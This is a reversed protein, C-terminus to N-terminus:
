HKRISHPFKCASFLFLHRPMSFSVRAITIFACQQLENQVTWMGSSLFGKEFRKRNWNIEMERKILYISKLFSFRNPIIPKVHIWMTVVSLWLTLFWSILSKSVTRIQETCFFSIRPTERPTWHKDSGSVMKLITLPDLTNVSAKYVLRSSQQRKPSQLLDM